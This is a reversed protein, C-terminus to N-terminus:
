HVFHTKHTGKKHLDINHYDGSINLKALEGLSKILVNGFNSIKYYEEYGVIDVFKEGDIPLYFQEVWELNTYINNLLNGDKHKILKYLEINENDVFYKGTLEHVFFMSKKTKGNIQKKLSVEYYNFSKSLTLLVCYTMSLVNGYNSIKYNEWDKISKFKEGKEKKYIFECWELNDVNNDHLDGNKHRVFKYNKPNRLFTKAVIIHVPLKTNKADVYLQINLYDGNQRSKMTNGFRNIITGSKGVKYGDLNPIDHFQEEEVEM